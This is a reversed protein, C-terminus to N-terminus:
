KAKRGQWAARINWEEGRRWYLTDVNAGEFTQIEKVESDIAEFLKICAQGDCCNGPMMFLEGKHKAFDYQLRNISCALRKDFTM